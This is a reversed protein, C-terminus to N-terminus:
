ADGCVEVDKAKVDDGRQGVCAGSNYVWWMLPTRVYGTHDTRQNM